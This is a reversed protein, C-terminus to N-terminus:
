TIINLQSLFRNYVRISIRFKHKDILTNLDRLAKNKSIINQKILQLFIGLTGLASINEVLSIKRIINDDTLITVLPNEIAYTLMKNDTSSLAASSLNKKNYDVLEVSSIFNYIISKENLNKSYKNLEDVVCNLLKINKYIGKLYKLYDIKSLFIVVCADCLTTSNKKLQKLTM